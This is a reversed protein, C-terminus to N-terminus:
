QILILARAAEGLLRHHEKPFESLLLTFSNIRQLTFSYILVHQTFYLTFSRHVDDREVMWGARACLWVHGYRALAIGGEVEGSGDLM